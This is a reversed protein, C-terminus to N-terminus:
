KKMQKSEKNEHGSEESLWNAKDETKLHFPIRVKSIEATIRDLRIVISLINKSIFFFIFNNRLRMSEEVFDKLKM